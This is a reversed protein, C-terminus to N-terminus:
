VEFGTRRLASSISFLNGVGYNLVLAKM